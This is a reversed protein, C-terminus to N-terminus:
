NSALPHSSGFGVASLRDADIGHDVLYAMVADARAQSLKQNKSKVGTNDTHGEIRIKIQPSDRLASAVQNLLGFSPKLITAKNPALRIQQKIEIRDARVTVLSY